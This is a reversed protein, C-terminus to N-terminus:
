IYYDIHDTPIGVSNERELVKSLVEAREKESYNIWERTEEM